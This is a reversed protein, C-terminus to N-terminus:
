NTYCQMKGATSWRGATHFAYQAMSWRGRHMVLLSVVATCGESVHKRQRSVSQVRIHCISRGSSDSRVIGRLHRGAVRSRAALCLKVAVPPGPCTSLPLAGLVVGPAESAIKARAAQRLMVSRLDTTEHQCGYAIVIPYGCRPM